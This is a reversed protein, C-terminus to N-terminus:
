PDGGRCDVDTRREEGGVGDTWIRRTPDRRHLATRTALHPALREPDHLAASYLSPGDAYFPDTVVLM